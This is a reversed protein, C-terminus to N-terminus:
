EGTGNILKVRGGILERDSSTVVEAFVLAPEIAAHENDQDLVKVFTKYLHYEDGMAGYNRIVEFIYERGGESRLASLPIITDYYDSTSSMKVTALQGGAVDQPPSIIDAHIDQNGNDATNIRKIEGQVRTKISPIDIELNDGQSFWIAQELPLNIVVEFGADFADITVALDTGATMGPTAKIKTVVGDGAAKLERSDEIEEKKAQISRETDEIRLAQAKAYSSPLGKKEYIQQQKLSELDKLEDELGSVDFTLITEGESVTDGNEKLVEKIKLGMPAYLTYQNKAKILTSGDYKHQLVGMTVKATTVVPLNLNFLTKSFFTLLLVIGIFIITIILIPKLKTKSLEM